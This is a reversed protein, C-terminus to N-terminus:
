EGKVQNEVKELRKETEELKISLNDIIAQQEKMAEVLVPVITAYSMTKVKYANSKVSINATREGETGFMNAERVLNPFVEEVEQAIFGIQKTKTDFNVDPYNSKDFNYEVGRLKMVKSLAGNITKINTKLRKDSVNQWATLGGGWGDAYVAWGGALLSTGGTFGGYVGIADDSNSFGNVGVGGTGSAGLHIGIIASAVNTSGSYSTAGMLVRNGNLASTIQWRGPSDTTGTHDWQTLWLGGSNAAVFNVPCVPATVGNLGIYGNAEITMREINSTRFKVDAANISGMFNATGIPNNGTTLWSAQTSTVPGGSGITGNIVMTGNTNFSPTTLTWNPGQPGTVGIPGQSGTAGTLGTPGQLGTLGIPGQTGTIGIPGQIGTAGTLGTPGQPGTLGIPGQPGTIGIPGQIGTAGTLGTPGQPGTLGIPGQTGTIGIPGQIGTAGTLGTPGQPGTLGIPGQPGASGFPRWFTGDFYYFINNSTQYILLSTAPGTVLNTDTRPILIGKNTSQLELIASADPLNTGIGVNNNQSYSNNLQFCILSCLLFLKLNNSIIKMKYNHKIISKNKKTM